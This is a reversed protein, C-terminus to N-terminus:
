IQWDCRACLTRVANKRWECLSGVDDKSSGHTHHRDLFQQLTSVDSVCGGYLTRMASMADLHTKKSIIVNQVVYKQSCLSSKLSQLWRDYYQVNQLIYLTM